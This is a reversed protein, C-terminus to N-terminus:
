PCYVVDPDRKKTWLIINRPLMTKSTLPTACAAGTRWVTRWAAAPVSTRRRGGALRGGVRLELSLRKEITGSWRLM